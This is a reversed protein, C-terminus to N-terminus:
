QCVTPQRASRTPQRKAVSKTERANRKGRCKFQLADIFNYVVAFHPSLIYTPTRVKTRTDCGGIKNHKQLLRSYACM